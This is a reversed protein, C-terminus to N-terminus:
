FCKFRTRNAFHDLFSAEGDRNIPEEVNTVSNLVPSVNDMNRKSNMAYCARQSSASLRFRVCIRDHINSHYRQSVQRLIPELGLEHIQCQCPEWVTPCILPM